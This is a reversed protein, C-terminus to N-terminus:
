DKILLKLILDRAEHSIPYSNPFRVEKEKILSFMINHNNNYFPPIGFIM